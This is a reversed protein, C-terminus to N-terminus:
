FDQSLNQSIHQPGMICLITVRIFRGSHSCINKLVHTYNSGKMTVNKPFFYLDAGCMNGSFAGRMMVSAPHKVTKVTFKPDFRSATRQRHVMNPVGRVLRFTSEDSFM